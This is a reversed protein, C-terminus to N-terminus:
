SQMQALVDLTEWFNKWLQIGPQCFLPKKKGVTIQQM